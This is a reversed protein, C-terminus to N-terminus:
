RSRFRHIGYIGPFCCHFAPSRADPTQFSMLLFLSVLLGRVEQDKSPCRALFHGLKGCYLIEGGKTESSLLIAWHSGGM